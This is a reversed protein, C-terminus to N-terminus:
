ELWTTRFGLYSTNPFHEFGKVNSRLAEYQASHFLFVQPAEDLIMEQAQTYLVKREEQDAIQRGQDLLTDLEANSYLGLNGGGETRFVDYLFDDPDSQGSEGLITATFDHELVKPLYVNWDEAIINVTVGIDALNSQIIEAPTRLFDYTSTVYLDLDFGDAFGAEALLAKAKEVDRGNYPSAEIAYYQGVPVTTGTAAVGGTGFLAVDVISQEDVAYALAQRVLKNDLPPRTVNLYISRFNNSLGGIVQLNSDAKLIEVDASPVYEVWDASGTQIATTRATPEPYFQFTIGDLYPLQNGDADKGWFDPSKELTMKTQPVYEIFKFPGTGVVVTNLDNTNANAVAESVIVNLSQALKSLLPSFPKILTIVVTANDPATVAQVVEFDGSRPSAIAPDKIRNLSFAVDSAKFPSGDHFTVGQRIKFTWTLGDESTTWSEALAPVIQMQSDFMVLTDYVNELMNRTATAQTTHPDLGVPDTQMGARLVGGYKPQAVAFAFSLVVVVLLFQKM